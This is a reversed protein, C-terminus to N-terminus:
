ASTDFLLEQAEILCEASTGVLLEDGVIIYGIEGSVGDATRIPATRLTVQPRNTVTTFEAMQTLPLQYHGDPYLFPSVDTLLTREWNKLAQLQDGYLNGVYKPQLTFHMSLVIDKKGPATSGTSRKCTYMQWVQQDVFREIGPEVRAGLAKTMVSLPITKQNDKFTTWDNKLVPANLYSRYAEQLRTDRASAASVDIEHPFVAVTNAPKEIEPTVSRERSSVLWWLMGISLTAVLAFIIKVKQM